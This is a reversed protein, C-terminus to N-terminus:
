FLFNIMQVHVKRTAQYLVDNLKGGRLGEVDNLFVVFFFCRVAGGLHYGISVTSLLSNSHETQLIYQVQIRLIMGDEMGTALPPQIPSVVHLSVLSCMVVMLYTTQM